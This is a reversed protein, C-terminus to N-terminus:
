NVKEEKVVEINKPFAVPIDEPVELAEVTGKDHDYYGVKLLSFDNREEKDRFAKIFTRVAEAENRAHNIPGCQMAVRDYFTFLMTKM